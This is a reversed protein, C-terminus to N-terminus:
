EKSFYYLPNEGGSDWTDVWHGDVVALVHDAVAVVFVGYQHEDCFDRVTYCEECHPPLSKRRFGNQRLVKHWVKDSHPMDKEDFGGLAMECYIQDWTKGTAAALARVACDDVNKGAPNENQRIFM